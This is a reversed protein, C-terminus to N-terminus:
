DESGEIFLSPYVEEIGAQESEEESLDGDVGDSSAIQSYAQPKGCFWTCDAYGAHQNCSRYSTGPLARGHHAHDESETLLGPCV